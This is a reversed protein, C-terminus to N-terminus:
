DAGGQSGLRNSPTKQLLKSVLDRFQQSYPCEMPSPWDPLKYKHKIREKIKYASRDHFPSKGVLLEFLLVGVAWWDIAKDYQGTNLMEPAQYEPTGVFTDALSNTNLTRSMGFDILKIYGNESLM